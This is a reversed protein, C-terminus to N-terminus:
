PLTLKVTGKPLCVNGNCSNVDVAIQLPSADGKVRTVDVQITTKGEYINTRVVGKDTKDTRVKGDPYRIKAGVKEGAKIAVITRNGEYDENDVPNAYIYWGKEVQLTITVMQKGDADLKTATATAKVKTDSKGFKKEGAGAPSFLGVALFAFLIGYRM